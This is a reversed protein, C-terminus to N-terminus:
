CHANRKSGICQIPEVNGASCPRFVSSFATSPGCAWAPGHDLEGSVFVTAFGPLGHGKPPGQWSEGRIGGAQFDSKSDLSGM